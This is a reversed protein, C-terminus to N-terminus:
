MNIILWIRDLGTVTSHCTTVIKFHSTITIQRIEKSQFSLSTVNYSKQIENTVNFTDNLLLFFFSINWNYCAISAPQKGHHEKGGERGRKGERQHPLMCRFGLPQKMQHTSLAPINLHFASLPLTLLQTEIDNRDRM